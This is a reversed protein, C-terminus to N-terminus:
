KTPLGYIAIVALTGGFIVLAFGLWNTKTKLGEASREAGRFQAPTIAPVVIFALGFVAILCGWWFLIIKLDADM